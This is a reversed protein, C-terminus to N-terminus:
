QKLGKKENSAEIDELCYLRFNDIWVPNSAKFNQIWFRIQVSDGHAPCSITETYTNWAGPTLKQDLQKLWNLPRKGKSPGLMLNVRGEVEPRQIYVDCMFLYTKGPKLPTHIQFSGHSMKYAYKGSSVHAADRKGTLDKRWLPVMPLKETEFDGGPILNAPRAGLMIKIQGRLNVPLDQNKSLKRLEAIVAPDGTFDLIKGAAGYCSAALNQGRDATLPIMPHRQYKKLAEVAAPVARLLEAAQEATRIKGDPPIIEGFTATAALEFFEFTKMIAKARLKQDPAAARAVVKELLGRAYKLDGKKLAYTHTSREGLHMYASNVSRYWQTKRIDEGTWYKEWFTFYRDLYPAAELGVCERYYRQLYDEIDLGPNWTQRYLMELQPGGSASLRQCEFYAFRLKHNEILNKLLRGHSRLYVRPLLYFREGYVYDSLGLASAKETWQALLKRKEPGVEPDLMVSLEMCIIPLVNKHLRFSPPNLVETYAIGHFVIDPHTKSVEKAVENVWKWYIESYNLYGISNRKGGVTKVCDKCQCFGSCDNVDMNIHKRDTEKKLLERINEVAIQVAAPHSWCFQFNTDYGIKALYPDAPLPLKAPKRPVYKKGNLVPLIEKPWSRDPAYKWVPFVDVSIMHSSHMIMNRNWNVGLRNRWSACRYLNVSPCDSFARLPVALTNKRPYHNIEPGYFGKLPYFFWRIGAHKELIHNFAFRVSQETGAIQMTRPDPFTIAFADTESLPRQKRINFIIRNLGATQRSHVPLKAGTCRELEANFFNVADKLTKGANGPMELAAAAKGDKFLQFDTGAARVSCSFILISIGFLLRCNFMQNTRQMIVIM